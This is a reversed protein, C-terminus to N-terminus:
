SKVLKWKLQDSFVQFRAEVILDQEQEGLEGPVMYTPKTQLVQLNKLGWSNYIGKKDQQFSINM